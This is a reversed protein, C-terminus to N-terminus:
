PEAVFLLHPLGGHVHEGHPAFGLDRLVATSARNQRLAFAHVRHLGLTGFAHALMGKAAERAYGHGWAYLLLRYGLEVTPEGAIECPDLGCTGVFTDGERTFVPWKGLGEAAHANRRHIWALAEADDRVLFAGPPAFCNYGVDQALHHWLPLDDDRWPRLYLRGTEVRSRVQTM